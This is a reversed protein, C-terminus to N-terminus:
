ALPDVGTAEVWGDHIKSPDKCMEVIEELPALSLGSKAMDVFMDCAAKGSSAKDKIGAHKVAEAWISAFTISLLQPMGKAKELEGKRAFYVDMYKPQAPTAKAKKKSALWVSGGLIGIIILTEM